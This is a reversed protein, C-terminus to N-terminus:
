LSFYLMSRVTFNYDLIFFFGNVGASVTAGGGYTPGYFVLEDKIAVTTDLEIEGVIPLNKITVAPVEFSPITVSRSYGFLVTFM